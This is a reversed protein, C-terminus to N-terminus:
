RGVPSGGPNNGGALIPALRRRAEAADVGPLLFRKSRSTPGSVLAITTPAVGFLAALPRAVAANARGDAPPATVRVKLADGHRGTVLDRGARPQVHVRLVVGDPTVDFLDDTERADV